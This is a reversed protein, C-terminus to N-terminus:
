KCDTEKNSSDSILKWIVFIIVILRILAVLWDEPVKIDYYYLLFDAYNISTCLVTLVAAPIYSVDMCALIMILIEAVIAYREHMSPLFFTLVFVTIMCIKVIFSATVDTKNKFLWLYLSLIVVLGMLMGYKGLGESMDTIVNGFFSYFNPYNLSLFSDYQGTQYIYIGLLDGITRHSLFMPICSAFYMVPIWIFYAIRVIKQSQLVWLLLVAPIILITQFKCAFAIGLVVFALDGSVSNSRAIKLLMYLFLVIFSAYITDCQGWASANLIVIPNLLIVGYVVLKKFINSNSDLECYTLVSVVALVFDFVIPIFKTVFLMSLPTQCLLCFITTYLPPYDSIGMGLSAFGASKATEYWNEQFIAVDASVFPFFFVRVLVAIVTIGLFGIIDAITLNFIKKDLFDKPTCSSKNRNLFFLAALGAALAFVALCIRAGTITGHSLIVSFVILITLTYAIAEAIFSRKNM